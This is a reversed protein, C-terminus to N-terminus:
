ATPVIHMNGVEVWGGQSPGGCFLASASAGSDKMEGSLPHSSCTSFGEMHPDLLFLHPNIKPIYFNLWNVLLSSAKQNRNVILSRGPDQRGAGCVWPGLQQWAVLARSDGRASGWPMPSAALVELRPAPQPASGLVHPQQLVGQM